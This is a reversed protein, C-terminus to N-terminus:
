LHNSNTSVEEIRNTYVYWLYGKVSNLPNM